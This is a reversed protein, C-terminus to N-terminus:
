SQSLAHKQRKLEERLIHIAEKLSFAKLMREQLSHKINLTEVIVSGMENQKKQCRVLAAIDDTASYISDSFANFRKHIQKLRFSEFPRWFSTKAVVDSLPKDIAVGTESVTREFQSLALDADDIRAIAAIKVEELLLSLDTDAKGKKYKEITKSITSLLKIGGTATSLIDDIGLAM